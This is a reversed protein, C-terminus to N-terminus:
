VACFRPSQRPDGGNLRDHQVQAITMSPSARPWWGRYNIGDHTSRESVAQDPKQRRGEGGTADGPLMADGNLRRGRCRNRYMLDRIHGIVRMGTVM